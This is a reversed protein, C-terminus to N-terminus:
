GSRPDVIHGHHDDVGVLRRDTRQGRCLPASAHAQEVEAGVPRLDIGDELTRGTGGLTLGDAAAVADSVAAVISPHDDVIGVRVPNSM